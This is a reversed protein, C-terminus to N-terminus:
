SPIILTELHTTQYQHLSNFTLNNFNSLWASM